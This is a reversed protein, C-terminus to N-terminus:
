DAWHNQGPDLRIGSEGIESAAETRDRVIWVKM